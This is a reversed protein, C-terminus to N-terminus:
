SAPTTRTQSHPESAPASTMAFNTTALGTIHQLAAYNYGGEIASYANQGNGPLSGREWGMENLQVYAKEALAVWLENGANNYM